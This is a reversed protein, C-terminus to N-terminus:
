VELLDRPQEEEVASDLKSLREGSGRLYNWNM